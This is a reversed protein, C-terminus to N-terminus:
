LLMQRLVHFISLLYSSTKNGKSDNNNLQWTM